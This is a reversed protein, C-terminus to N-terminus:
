RIRLGPRTEAIPRTRARRERYFTFIGTAIVIGAGVLTLGDPFDGFAFWGLVLAWILATYRFPAVFSIDGVRMVMVVFLYGLILAVSASVLLLAQTGDVPQLGQVPAAVVGMLTVAAAAYIAVTTSPLDRSMGRTALDRLVVCGVSLLGMVSWRDFGETGPRVILLVGAFGIAIALMRRWGVPDRFVVAAVLTVALPLSQMIASLNALPMHTLALLFFITGGVEGLTRLGVLLRDRGSLHLRIGGMAASLILLLCVTLGGRLAIAQFLPMGATVAKMCADNVTFAAMAVNMYLAGRGNDTMKARGKNLREM